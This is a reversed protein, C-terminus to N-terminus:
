CDYHVHTGSSSGQGLWVTERARLRRLQRSRAHLIDVGCCNLQQASIQFGPATAGLLARVLTSKGAGSSGVVALSEGAKLTYNIGQLTHERQATAVNFESM